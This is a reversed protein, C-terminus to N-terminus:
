REERRFVWLFTSTFEKKQSQDRGTPHRAAHVASNTTSLSRSCNHLSRQLVLHRWSNHGQSKDEYMRKRTPTKKGLQNEGLYLFVQAERERETYRKEYM